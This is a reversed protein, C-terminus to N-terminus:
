GNTAWGKELCEQWMWDPCHKAEIVGPKAGMGGVMNAYQLLPTKLGLIAGSFEGTQRKAIVRRTGNKEFEWVSENDDLFQCLFETRWLAAQVSTQFPANWEGQVIGPAIEVHPLKLRDDSLDIKVINENYLMGQHLTAAVGWDVPATIWYDELLLIVYDSLWYTLKKLGASWTYDAQNGISVFEANDPLGVPPLADYGAIIVQTDAGAFRNFYHM